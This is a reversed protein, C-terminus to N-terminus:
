RVACIDAAQHVAPPSDPHAASYPTGDIRVSAMAVCWAATLLSGGSAGAARSGCGGVGHDRDPCSANPAISASFSRPFSSGRRCRGPSCRRHPLSHACWGASVVTCTGRASIPPATRRSSASAPSGAGRGVLGHEIGGPPARSRRRERGEASRGGLRPRPCRTGPRYRAEATAPATPRGPRLAYWQARQKGPAAREGPSAPSPSGLARRAIVTPQAVTGAEARSAAAPTVFPFPSRRRPYRNARATGAPLTEIHHRPRGGCRIPSTKTATESCISRSASLRRSPGRPARRVKLRKMTITIMASTKRTGILGARDPTGSSIRATDSASRVSRTM